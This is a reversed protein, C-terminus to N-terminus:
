RLKKTFNKINQGIFGQLARYHRKLDPKIFAYWKNKLARMRWEPPKRFPEARHRAM